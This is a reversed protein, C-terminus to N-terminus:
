GGGSKEAGDKGKKKKPERTIEPLQRPPRGHERFVM